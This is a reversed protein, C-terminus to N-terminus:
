ASWDLRNGRKSNCSRHATRLNSPDHNPVLALSQPEIHDISPATPDLHRVHLDVPEGCLQCTWNDREYIALRAKPTIWNHRRPGFYDNHAVVNARRCDACRCGRKYAAITGCPHLRCSRCRAEGAPRSTSGLYIPDGCGACPVRKNMDTCRRSCYKATTPTACVACPAIPRPKPPKRPRSAHRDPRFCSECRKRRRGRGTRQEFEAGCEICTSDAM